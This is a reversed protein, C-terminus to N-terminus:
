GTLVCSAGGSLRQLASYRRGLTRIIAGSNAYEKDGEQLVPVSGFPLAGEQQKLQAFKAYSGGCCTLRDCM